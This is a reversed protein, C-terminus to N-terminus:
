KSEARLNEKSYMPIIIALTNTLIVPSLSHLINLRIHLLEMVIIGHISSIKECLTCWM